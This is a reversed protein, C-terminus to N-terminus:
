YHCEQEARFKFDGRHDVQGSLRRREAPADPCPSLVRLAIAADFRTSGESSNRYSRRGSGSPGRSSDCDFSTHSVRCGGYEDERNSAEKAWKTLDSFCRYWRYVTPPERDTRREWEEPYGYKMIADKDWSSPCSVQEVSRPAVATGTVEQKKPVGGCAALMSTFLIVNTMRCLANM